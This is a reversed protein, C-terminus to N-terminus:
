STSYLPLFGPIIRLLPFSMYNKEEWFYIINKRIEGGFHISHYENPAGTQSVELSYGFFIDKHLFLFSNHPYRLKDLAIAKSFLELRIKYRFYFRSNM